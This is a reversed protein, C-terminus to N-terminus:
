ELHDMLYLMELDERSDAVKKRLFTLADGDIQSEAIMAESQAIAHELSKIKLQRIETDKKCQALTYADIM